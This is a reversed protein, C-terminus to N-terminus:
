KHTHTHTHLCQKHLKHTHTNIHTHQTHVTYLHIHIFLHTYTCTYQINTHLTHVQDLEEEAYKQRSWENETGERLKGLRQAEQKAENIEDRLRQELTVKEVEM